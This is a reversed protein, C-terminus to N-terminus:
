IVVTPLREQAPDSSSLPTAPCNAGSLKKSVVITYPGVGGSARLEFTNIKPPSIDALSITNYGFHKCRSVTLCSCYQWLQKSM